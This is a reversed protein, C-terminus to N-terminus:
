NKKLSALYELLDVFDQTSMNAQLGEPMISIKMDRIQLIDSRKYPTLIAGGNGITKVTVEDATQSAILGEVQGGDKLKLIHGEYGFAIAASPQLIAECLAEKPLKSGIQSLDPGFNVGENNARHCVACTKAWVLHGRGFDGPMKILQAVPPLPQANKGAPMPFLEAAAQSIDHQTNQRLVNGLTYNLDDAMQHRRALDILTHAGTFNGAMAKVAAQRIPLPQDKTMAIHSLFATASGDAINGLAAILELAQKGALAQKIAALNRHQVVLQAAAVGTSDGSHTAAFDLLDDDRDTVAMQRCLEVFQPTGRCHDLLRGALPALNGVAPDHIQQLRTIAELQVPVPLDTKLLALLADIKERSKPIFDFARIFRPRDAPPTASDSIIKTLYGTALPSRNRWIIDRGAPTNWDGNVKQLYAQLCEGDRDAAGVGLAELYWRDHGDHQSALEAWLQPMRPSHNYHLAIACERRVAASSDHALSEVMPIVDMKVSRAARLATIRIDPDSDKIATQIYQEGKGDPLMALLWLARARHRSDSENWLKLLAPEAASGMKHLATWGLYRRAMNPSVLAAAAGDATKADLPPIIYPTNPPAIRIIRGHMNPYHNDQMGHGGVQPDYWDSVFLSGDPAVCVDSPRFWRDATAQALNVISATYGAGAPQVPYSRVLQMGPDCHIMQNRFIEPLLTGEYICIGAPAGQGTFLLNPISGPDNQHWHRHPIDSELNTRNAQWAAGTMEDSYGYNGYEMIYNIRTAQNGDDDNDSQWVTGFADVAVEYCNRFNHALVEVDSGDMNCRLVMGMRYATQDGGAKTKAQGAHVINGFIDKVPSGDPHHLELAANGMDFYLKGDPGFTFAHVGHDHQVGQIGTFLTTKEDAHDSGNHQTMVFVNPSNSVIVRDGLVCVGLPCALDKGQYFTTAQDAESSGAASQLILIRDGEPRLNAWARYDVGECVWVRGQADVDIDAPKMLMPEAAFLTAELGNALKLSRVSEQPAMQAFTPMGICLLVM